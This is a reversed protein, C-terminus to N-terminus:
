DDAPAPVEGQLLGSMLTERAERKRGSQVMALLDETICAQWLDPDASVGMRKLEARADALLPALDAYELLHSRSLEERFKRALAPSAGGTSTAVTIEGRRVVSPAIFTCLHTVDVVNLVVNRERAERAVATNVKNDDTAAIAIFADELDGKLYDRQVRTVRGDDALQRVGDTVDPSVVVVNAGCELLRRVKDEGIHGGGIVM